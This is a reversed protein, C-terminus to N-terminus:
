VMSTCHLLFFLYQLRFRTANCPSACFWAILPCLSFAESHFCLSSNSLYSSLNCSVLCPGPFILVSFSSHFCINFLPCSFLFHRMFGWICNCCMHFFTSCSFFLDESAILCCHLFFPLRFYSRTSTSFPLSNKTLSTAHMFITILVPCFLCSLAILVLISSFLLTLLPLYCSSKSLISSTIRSTNHQQEPHTM